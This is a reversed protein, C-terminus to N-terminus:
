YSGREDLKDDIDQHVEPLLTNMVLNYVEPLYFEEYWNLLEKVNKFHTQHKLQQFYDGGGETEIIINMDSDFLTFWDIEVPTYDSGDWFPTAAVSILELMDPLFRGTRTQAQWYFVGDMNTSITFEKYTNKLENFRMNEYLIENAIEPTIKINSLEVVKTITLGLIKATDYVGNEDITKILTEKFTNQERLIRRISQKISMEKIKYEM